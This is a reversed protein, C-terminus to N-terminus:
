RLAEFKERIESPYCGFQEIFLKTFHRSSFYGVAQSVEHVKLDPKTLLLEKAKLMRIRTLYKVFTVGEKKHFLSSLYNPTVNFQAALTGIAIDNMYNRDVYQIVRSVIDANSSAGPQGASALMADGQRRLSELWEAPKMHPRVASQISAQLFRCVSDLMARNEFLDRVNTKGLAALEKSYGVYDKEQYLRALRIVAECWALREPQLSESQLEALTLVSGPAYCLRLPSLTDLRELQGILERFHDCFGTRLAHVSLSGETNEQQILGAIQEELGALTGRDRQEGQLPWCWLVAMRGSDAQILGRRLDIAGSQDGPAEPLGATLRNMANRYLETQNSGDVYLTAGAFGFGEYLRVSGDWVGLRAERLRAAAWHEFEYNRYHESQRRENWAQLVCAELEKPDAPKLLYNSAGLRIAEKAYQFEMFGTLIIWKADPAMERGQRIAELGSLKPMKIDVFVLDPVTERILELMEEGNRAERVSLTPLDIEQLMSVLGSRVWKEDDTVLINM